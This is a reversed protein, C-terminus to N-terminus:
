TSEIQARAPAKQEIRLHETSRYYMAGPFPLRTAERFRRSFASPTAVGKREPRLALQLFMPIACPFTGTSESCPVKGDCTSSSSNDVRLRQRLRAM